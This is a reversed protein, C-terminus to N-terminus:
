QQPTALSALRRFLEQFHLQKSLCCNALHITPEGEGNQEVLASIIVFPIRQLVPHNRVQQCLAIGDLGPLDWDSVIVDPVNPLGMQLTELAVFADAAEIVQCGESELAIATVSRYADDDDVLLVKIPM